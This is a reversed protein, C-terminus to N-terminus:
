VHARGIKGYWATGSQATGSQATGYWATNYWGMSYHHSSGPEELTLHKRLCGSGPSSQGGGWVM